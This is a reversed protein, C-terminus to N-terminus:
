EEKKKFGLGIFGTAALAMLATWLGAQNHDGTDPLPRVGDIEVENSKETKKENDPNDPNDPDKSPDTFAITGINKWTTVEKVEPIKVKFSVTYASAEGSATEGDLKDLTWKITGDNSLVGNGTISDKIIELGAPVKDAIEIDYAPVTGKNTVTFYYTVIDGSKAKQAEKTAANDNVAMKKVLEVDTHNYINTFTAEKEVGNLTCEISEVTLNARGDDKIVVTYEYVDESYNIAEKGTDKEVVKFKYTGARDFDVADFDVSAAGGAGPAGNYRTQLLQIPDVNLDYLEFQFENAKVERGKLVKKVNGTFDVAIPNPTYTNEFVAKSANNAGNKLVINQDVTLNGKGDDNIVVTLTYETNDYDVGPLDNDVEEITFTYTGGKSFELEEDFVVEATAKDNTATAARNEGTSVVNGDKDVVQFKFEGAKLDRGTLGKEATVLDAVPVKIPTPIYENDFQMTSVTSSGALGGMQLTETVVHLQGANPETVTVRIKFYDTDYKIGEAEKNAVVLERVIYYYTGPTNYTIEDFTFTSDAKNWTKEVLSEGLYLSNTQYLAFEFENAALDRGSLTKIGHFTVKGDEPDKNTFKIVNEISANIPSADVEVTAVLAGVGNDTVRVVVTYRHEDYTIGSKHENREAVTYSYTGVKDFVLKDFTVLGTATKVGNVDVAAGAANRKSQIVDGESDYLDFWFENAALDRGELVKTAKLVVEAPTAVYVNGFSVAKNPNNADGDVVYSAVLQGQLNDRVTVVIEYKYEDYEVGGKTGIVERLEFVYQGPKDFVLKKLNVKAAQGATAAENTAANSGTQNWDPKVTAGAPASKLELEFGFEGAALDRGALTKTVKTSLDVEVSTPAYTNTFTIATGAQIDAVPVPVYNAGDWKEVTTTFQGHTDTVTVRLKYQTQDYTVGNVASTIPNGSADTEQIIYYHVGDATYRIENFFFKGSSQNAVTQLKTPNGWTSNSEFLTFHFEGEAATRGELTKTGELELDVPDASYTNAFTVASASMDTVVAGDVRLEAQLTGTSKGNGDFAETVIVEVHHETTDYHVGNTGQGTVPLKERIVYKYTGVQTFEHNDFYTFAIAKVDSGVGNGVTQIPAGVPAFIDNAEYLEFNFENAAFTKEVPNNADTVETLTKKANLEVKVPALEFVNTFSATAAGNTDTLTYTASITGDLNDVLTVTLTYEQTSYTIGPVKDADAPVIEKLTYTFVESHPDTDNNGRVLDSAVYNKVLTAKGDNETITSTAILTNGEYIGFEFGAPLKGTGALDNLVKQIDLTIFTDGTAAYKNNFSVDVKYTKVGGSQTPTVETGNGLVVKEIELKGDMDADNVVVNFYHITSDYTMGGAAGNGTPIVERVRYQYTGIEDYQENQAPNNGGFILREFDKDAEEVTDQHYTVWNTGNFKEIVFNFTEGQLWNRGSVEKTVIVNAEVSGNQPVEEPTYTNVLRVSSNTDQVITGTLEAAPTTLAYGDYGAGSLDETVTYATNTPLGEISVLEAHRITFNIKGDEVEVSQNRGAISSVLNYTDDNLATGVDVTVKFEKNKTADSMVYGDGFPHSIVKNIVLNGHTALTNEFVVEDLTENTITGTASGTQVAGNVTIKGVIYDAHSKEVITYSVGDPVGTIYATQGNDLTVTLKKNADTTVTAEEIEVGDAGFLHAFLEKNAMDGDFTIEFLFDETSTNPQVVDITKTLKIGEAPVIQLRGNNGLFVDVRYDEDTEPTPNFIFPYFSYKLTETDNETKSHVFGMIERQITGKPIYWNTGVQKAKALSQGSIVEYQKTIEAGNGNGTSEFVVRAHYYTGETANPNSTVPVYNNGVRTYILTDEAYYFRENDISPEFDVTTTKHTYPNQQSVPIDGIEDGVGWMNSFFYYGGGASAPAEHVHAGQENMLDKVTLENVGPVLGVEYVLRAPNANVIEMEINQANEYSNGELSIEYTVTPILSAPINWHVSQHGDTIDTQVRVTMYMMEADKISTENVKDEGLYGYSKMLYRTGTPYNNSDTTGNWFGLYNMNEDAYWGVYNSYNNANTYSLQGNNYAQRVLDRAGQTDLGLREKVSWIFEDGLDTPNEITGLGNNMIVQAMKSGNFFQNGIVIGKMDKVEMYAGLDDEFSIYGGMDHQGDEAMTPYYKSQIIIQEVISDFAEIMATSNEAPFYQDVYLRQDASTLSTDKYVNVTKTSNNTNSPVSISYYNGAAGIYNSWMNIIGSTSNAPDLISRAIDRGDSADLGDIGLGLTYVMPTRDYKDEMQARVWALTLQNLFGMGDANTGYGRGANSTGVNNFSSTATTPAGDSMLVLIPMRKTGAQIGTEITTDQVAEFEQWAKFVGNQIYTSGQAAKYNNIEANPADVARTDDHVRVYGNSFQIYTESYNNGLGSTNGPNYRDLPLLVTGTSADSNGASNTGSYLVVGVRNYNNVEQLKQIASNTSSVMDRVDQDSMSNSLDLVLM